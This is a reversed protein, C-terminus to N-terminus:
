TDRTYTQQTSKSTEPERITRNMREKNEKACATFQYLSSLRSSTLCPNCGSRRYGRRADTAFASRKGQGALLLACTGHGRAVFSCARGSLRDASTDVDVAGVAGQERGM